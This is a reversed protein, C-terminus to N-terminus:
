RNCAHHSCKTCGKENHKVMLQCPTGDEDSWEGREWYCEEHWWMKTKKYFHGIRCVSGVNKLSSSKGDEM